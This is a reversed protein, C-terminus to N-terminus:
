VSRDRGVVCGVEREIRASVAIVVFITLLFDVSASSASTSTLNLFVMLTFFSLPINEQWKNGKGTASSMSQRELHHPPPPKLPERAQRGRPRDWSDPEMRGLKGIVNGIM